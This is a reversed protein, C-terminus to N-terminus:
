NRDLPVALMKDFARNLRALHKFAQPDRINM